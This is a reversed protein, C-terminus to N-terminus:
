GVDVDGFRQYVGDEGVVVITNDGEIVDLLKQNTGPVSEEKWSIADKSTSVEGKEGVAVFLGDDIEAYAIKTIYFNRHLENIEKVPKVQQNLDNATFRHGAFFGAIMVTEGNTAMSLKLGSFMETNSLKTINWTVGDTSTAFGDDGEPMGPMRKSYGLAVFYGNIYKIQRFEDMVKLPATWTIGDTSTTIEGFFSTAVYVGNGYTISTITFQPAQDVTSGTWTVGDKSFLFTSGTMENDLYSTGIMFQGNVFEIINYPKTQNPIVSQEVWNILDVSTVIKPMNNDNTLAVYMGNGYAIASLGIASQKTWLQAVSAKSIAPRILIILNLLLSCSLIIAMMRRTTKSM